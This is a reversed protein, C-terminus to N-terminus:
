YADLDIPRMVGFWKLIKEGVGPAEVHIIYMGSAIPIIAQNKLDWNIYTSSDDKKLRRILTGNLTYISVTCRNPLNVIKVINDVGAKEYGSYAYYPNPVVGVQDLASKATEGDNTVTTLDNLNFEYMPNNNNVAPNALDVTASDVAYATKYPKAVRIRIKVDTDLVKVKSSTLVPINVWMADAFVDRKYRNALVGYQVTLSLFDHIFKGKDYRPVNKLQNPRYQDFSNYKADGNHGFVYIYHKGGFIPNGYKASSTLDMISSTPNWIMDGGNDTKNFSDEGFAMNLREGTEVNIAYGPFWGMGTAFDDNDASPYNANGNKDVSAGARIDMKNRNGEALASEEQLELVPCRTWKSKDNTIIVDISPLYRLPKYAQHYLDWAPGGLSVTSSSNACLRYPAWTGNLVNQFAKSDDVGVYDSMGADPDKFTQSGSRIWNFNTLGDADSIGTLWKKSPDAFEMTAEIFGNNASGQTGPYLINEVYVSIGWRPFTENAKGTPQGNIIKESPNKFVDDSTVVQSPDDLNVLTWTDNDSVGSFTIRFNGEPVNLPDVVKIAVPGRGNQYQIRPVFNKELIENVSEDTLDLINGGNGHGEVRTIKPGAGYFAPFKTGGKEPAPAHPIAPHAFPAGVDASLRGQLYPSWEDLKSLDLSDSNPQLSHAYAVIAYYYTKHNILKTNGIAFKDETVSASHVIGKNAGNVMEKPVLASISLDPTYNVIQTVTNKIDCQLVLRAKDVNYLDAVSVSADKLQYIKYGEFLFPKDNPSSKDADESYKEKYNNSTEPNTWTLLLQNEMEQIALIPATPGDLTKFCANFLKQAKSDAGKMLGVSALNGGQTTRAWVVGITITNIAGGKLTFPGASQLFRRDFPDNGSSAEDWPAQRVMNTGYGEPDSTGPFMYNCPVGTLHGNGGYTIQSGDRWIGKLYNYFNLAGVPNGQATADNNYYVFKAMGIREDDVKGNSYNLFSKPVSSAPDDINNADAFPGEFFDIGIAPPNTGYPIQGPFPNDDVLDGNYCFGLGLEVDCGVFDDTGSGLDPDCWVGFYTNFLSSSSRNIIKYRYFTMNNIEDTTKFAFGQAQVELGISTGLSETHINGADNFVWFMNQDGFLQADCGRNGLIDFDPIEGQDYEYVGNNNIDWFPALSNNDYGVTPWSKIVDMADKPTPNPTSQSGTVWNYYTEVDARNITFHKDWATCQDPTISVSDNLPGPWFDNGTQRYTMGAVKLSGGVDQGGIWLSGAFIATTGVAGKAPKPIFYKGNLLDWWMDGGTLITARVNNIDLDAKDVAPKCGAMIAHNQNPAPSPKEKTLNEKAIANLSFILILTCLVFHLVNKKM